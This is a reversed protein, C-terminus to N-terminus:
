VLHCVPFPVGDIFCDFKAINGELVTLDKLKRIFNPALSDLMQENSKPKMNENLYLNASWTAEGKSNTAKCTYEGEDNYDVNKIILTYYNDKQILQFKENATIKRCNCYWVIKPDPNGVIKCHFKAENGPDMFIDSFYEVFRPKSQYIDESEEYEKIRINTINSAVTGYKNSIKCYYLGSDIEQANKMVLKLEFQRPSECIENIQLKSAQEFKNDDHFWEFQIMEESEVIIKLTINDDVEFNQIDNKLDLIIVPPKCKAESKKEEPIVTVKCSTEVAGDDIQLTYKGADEMRVNDIILTLERDNNDIFKYHSKADFPFGALPQNDKLLKIRSLINNPRRSLLCSLKLKTSEKVSLSDPFKMVLDVPVRKVNLKASLILRTVETPTTTHDTTADVFCLYYSDDEIHTDHLVLNYTNDANM